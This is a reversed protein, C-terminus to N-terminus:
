DRNGCMKEYAIISTKTYDWKCMWSYITAFVREIVGNKQPTRPSTFEFNIEGFIIAYNEKLTKNKVSNECRM